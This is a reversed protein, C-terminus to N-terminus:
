VISNLKQKIKAKHQEINRNEIEQDRNLKFGAFAKHLLTM